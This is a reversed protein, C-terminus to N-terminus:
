KDKQGKKPNVIEEGAVKNVMTGFAYTALQTAINKGSSELVETIFKKGRSVEKKAQSSQVLDKYKREM